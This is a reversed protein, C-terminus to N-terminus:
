ESRGWLVGETTVLRGLGGNVTIMMYCFKMKFDKHSETSRIACLVRDLDWPTIKSSILRPFIYLNLDQLLTDERLRYPIDRLGLEKNITPIIKEFEKQITKAIKWRKKAIRVDIRNLLNWQKALNELNM